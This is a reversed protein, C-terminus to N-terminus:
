ANIVCNYLRFGESLPYACAGKYKSANIDCRTVKGTLIIQEVSSKVTDVPIAFGAYIKLHSCDLRAM